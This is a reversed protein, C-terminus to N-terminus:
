GEASGSASVPVRSAQQCTGQSRGQAQVVAPTAADGAEAAPSPLVTVSLTTDGPPPPSPSTTISSLGSHAGSPTSRKLCAHVIHHVICHVVHHVFYHVMYHVIYHVIHHLEDVLAEEVVRAEEAYDGLEDRLHVHVAHVTCICHVHLNMACTCMCQMCRAYASVSVSASACACTVCMRRVHVASVQTLAHKSAGVSWSGVRLEAQAAVMYVACQMHM